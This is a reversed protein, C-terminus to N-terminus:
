HPSDQFALVLRAGLGQLRCTNLTALLQGATVRDGEHVRVADLHGALEFGLASSRAAEVRGVYWRTLHFGEVAEPAFTAVPLPPLSKEDTASGPRHLM